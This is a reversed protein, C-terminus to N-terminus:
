QNEIQKELLTELAALRAELIAIQEQQTEIQAAQAQNLHYLGQIAALAVGDADVTSIHLEDEGVGFAAYFDQAAPGIHRVSPDQSKYNWTQIPISNLRDLIESESVPAFNAKAQRDSWTAWSGSGPPLAAGSNLDTSSFFYVGGSARVMFRNPNNCPLDTKTADAWVFCGQSNAKAQQGAAFSFDGGAVNDQGGPIVSYVGRASNNYGGGITAWSGVATNYSGGGVTTYIEAAKNSYGGGITTYINTANNLWGGGVTAGPNGATNDLGGGVTTYINNANNQSGGGVSSFPGSASNLWGGDVTAYSNIANNALGGGVTAFPADSTLGANDGAQNNHGGSVVGYDDTIRNTKGQTGGGAITAGVVGNIVSNDRYGGILNPSTSNPETWLNPLALAYAAVPLRQRTELTTYADIRQGPRVGIELYRVDGTFVRDGFDLEVTFRGEQVTVNDSNVIKGIQNGDTLADYVKFEFDYIGEVPDGDEDNLQGTYTFTTGVATPGNSADDPEQATIRESGAALWIGGILGFALLLKFVSNHAM